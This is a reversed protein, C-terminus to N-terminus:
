GGGRPTRNPDGILPPDKGGGPKHILPTGRKPVGRIMAYLRARRATFRVAPEQDGLQLAYWLIQGSRLV